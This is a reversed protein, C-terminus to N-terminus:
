ANPTESFRSATGPIQGGLEEPLSAFSSGYISFHKEPMYALPMAFYNGMLGAMQNWYPPAGPEYIWPGFAKLTEKLPSMRLGLQPNTLAGAEIVMRAKKLTGAKELQEMIKKFPVNGMGPALHSDSYGFNDTLHVHKVLGAIKETEKVVDEEKFGSKRMINLHGVDLTMGLLKDAQKKAESKSMGDAVAKKIFQEKSKEILKKMDEARSFAMGQYMNEIAIIPAKEKFKKYSRYALNGFTEAAKEMAFKEVPVYIQPARFNKDGEKKPTTIEKLRQISNILLKRILLPQGIKPGEESIKKIEKQYDEALKKLEARQAESGYKYAQNFANNFHMRVNDLFINAQQMKHLAEQQEPSLKKIVDETPAKDLYKRLVEPAGEMIDDAHKEYFALTSLKNDWETENITEVEEMPSREVVLGEKGPLYKKEKRIVNIQTPNDLNIIGIEEEEFREKEGPKTGEKPRWKAGPIGGSSHVVVPINGEPDIEHSKEIVSFLRNEADKRGLDGEWEGRSGFGAPDIIPAHLSAKVGTLKTLAKIEEFQQKPIQEFVDPQIQQIEVAKTGERIRSIVENVQNAVHTSTTSTLKEAPLRYGVFNGYDPNFSSYGGVYFTDYHYTGYVM